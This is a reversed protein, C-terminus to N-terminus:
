LLSPLPPPVTRSHPHLHPAPQDINRGAGRGRCSSATFYLPSSPTSGCIRQELGLLRCPSWLVCLSVCNRLFSLTLTIDLTHILSLPSLTSILARPRWRTHPIQLSQSLIRGRNSHVCMRCVFLGTSSTLFPIRPRYSGERKRRGHCPADSAMGM